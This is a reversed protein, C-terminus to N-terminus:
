GFLDVDDTERILQDYGGIMGAPAWQRAQGIADLDDTADIAVMTNGSIYTYSQM